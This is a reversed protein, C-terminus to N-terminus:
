KSFGESLLLLLLLLETGAGVRRVARREKKLM